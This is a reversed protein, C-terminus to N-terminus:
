NRLLLVDNWDKSATPPICINIQLRDELKEKLRIAATLGPEDRDAYVRLTKVGPPPEFKALLGADLASWVPLGHILAASLCTEIGEGVGLIDGVLPMLRVACGIRGELKSVKKRPEYGVLKKGGCLWTVHCTVLEGAIDVVDAVLAPYRGIQRGGDWYPVSVHAKLSCGAPLPWLGRGELYSVVEDCDAIECRERRLTFVRATPRAVNAPTAKSTPMDARVQALATSEAPLGAAEIVRIRAEPFDWGFVHRLLAFGDGSKVSNCWFSGKGRLAHDFRFRDKGGCGPCPGHKNRLVTEPIGLKVLVSPWDVLSHIEAARMM